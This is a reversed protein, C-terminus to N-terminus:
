DDLHLFVITHLLVNPPLENLGPLAALTPVAARPRKNSAGDATIKFFKGGEAALDVKGGADSPVAFIDWGRAHVGVIECASQHTSPKTLDGEGDPGSSVTVFKGDPSWDVHYVKRAKDSILVRLQEEGLSPKGDTDFDLEALVVTQDDEGWAIRNDKPHFCPRLTDDTM